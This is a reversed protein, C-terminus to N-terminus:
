CLANMLMNATTLQNETRLHGYLDLTTKVSSHGAWISIKKDTEGNIILLSVNSHRLDHFRIVRLENKQCLEKFKRTVYDPRIIDGNDHVCVFDAWKKNYGRQSKRRDQNAKLTKLYEYCAEPMPLTRKSNETKLRNEYRLEGKYTLTGKIHIVKNEFDVYQWKLGCVEGRRLGFWVGLMIAPEIPHGKAENLLKKLEQPTYFDAKFKQKKPLEIVDAPNREIFEMKVAYKLAKHINAHYRSITTPSINDASQKYDYFNQIDLPRLDYLKIKKGEFYPAIASYVIQKYTHYTTGAWDNKRHQLWWKMYDEFLIDGHYIIIKKEYEQRIKEAQITALEKNEPADTIGTSVWQIKRTGQENYWTLVAQYKGHKTTVYVKM